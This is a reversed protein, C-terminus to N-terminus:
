TRTRRNENGTGYGAQRGMSRRNGRPVGFILMVYKQWVVRQLVPSPPRPFIKGARGDALPLMPPGLRLRTPPTAFIKRRVRGNETPRGGTAPVPQGSADLRCAVGNCARRAAPPRECRRCPALACAASIARNRRFTAPCAEVAPRIAPRVALPQAPPPCMRRSIAPRVSAASPQCPSAHAPVPRSRGLSPAAPRRVNSARRGAGQESRRFRM